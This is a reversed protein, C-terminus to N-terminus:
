EVWQADMLRDEIALLEEKTPELKRINRLVRYNIYIFQLKDITNLSIQNRTNSHIFNMLSWAREALISNACTAMLKDAFSALELCMTEIYAWFLKPKERFSWAQCTPYFAGRQRRFDYFYLLATHSAPIFRNFTSIIQQQTQDDMKYGYNKPNLFFATTHLPMLQQNIRDHWLKSNSDGRTIFEKIEYVFCNTSEAITSLKTHNYEM